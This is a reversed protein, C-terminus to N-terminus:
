NTLCPTKWWRNMTRAALDSSRGSQHWQRGCGRMSSTGSVSDAYLIFSQPNPNRFIGQSNFRLSGWSATAVPRRPFVTEQLERRTTGGSPMALLDAQDWRLRGGVSGGVREPATPKQWFAGDYLKLGDKGKGGRGAQSLKQAAKIVPLTREVRIVSLHHGDATFMIGM